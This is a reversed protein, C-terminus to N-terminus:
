GDSAKYSNWPVAMPHRNGCRRPVKGAFVLPLFSSLSNLACDVLSLTINQGDGTAILRPWATLLGAAAFIATQFEVIPADCITPPTDKTGTIDAIGTAAQILPETWHGHSGTEDVTIDLFIQGARRPPPVSEDRRDSSMLVVNARAFAERRAKETDSLGSKFRALAKPDVTHEFTLVTAGVQALLSDCAQIAPRKGWELVVLDDFTTNFTM